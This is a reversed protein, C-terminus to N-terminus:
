LFYLFINYLFNLIVFNKNYKELPNIELPDSFTTNYEQLKGKPFIVTINVNVETSMNTIDKLIGPIKKGQKDTSGDVLEELFTIYNMTWTGIPLETIIITNEDIKEYKGKILFKQDAIKRVTGKFGEFYPVFDIPPITADKEKELKTRIYKLLDLPDYPPISSSFGTGIGSFL